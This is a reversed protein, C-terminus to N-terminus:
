ESRDGAAVSSDTVEPALVMGSEADVAIAISACANCSSNPGCMPALGTASSETMPRLMTPRSFTAGGPTRGFNRSTSFCFFAPSPFCGLAVRSVWRCMTLPDDERSGNAVALSYRHICTTAFTRVRQPIGPHVAQAGPFRIRSELADGVRRLQLVWSRDNPTGFQQSAGPLPLLTM